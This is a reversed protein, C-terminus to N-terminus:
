RTYVLHQLNTAVVNNTELNPMGNHSTHTTRLRAVYEHGAQGLTTNRNTTNQSVTAIRSPGTQSTNEPSVWAEITIANSHKVADILKTAPGASRLITAHNVSLGCGSLWHVNGPHEIHLNIPQGVGSIDNVINGNGEKFDYLVQLGHTVRNANTGPTCETTATPETWSVETFPAGPLTAVTVDDPCTAAIDADDIPVIPAQFPIITVFDECSATNGFNDTITLTVIRVGADAATFSTPSVSIDVLQAGCSGYSNGRDIDAATFNVVGSEDLQFFVGGKCAPVPAPTQSLDDFVLGFEGNTENVGGNIEYVLGDSLITGGINNNANQILIACIEMNITGSNNLQANNEVKGASNIMLMATNSLMAENILQGAVESRNNNTLTGNNTLVSASQIDLMGNNIITGMNPIAGNMELTGGADIRLTAGSAISLDSAAPFVAIGSISFIGENDMGNTNSFSGGIHLVGKNNIQGNSQFTGFSNFAAFNYHVLFGGLDKETVPISITKKNNNLQ